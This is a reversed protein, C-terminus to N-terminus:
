YGIYILSHIEIWHYIITIFNLSIVKIGNKNKPNQIIFSFYSIWFFFNKKKKHAFGFIFKPMHASEQEKEEGALWQASEIM